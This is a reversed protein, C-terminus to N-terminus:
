EFDVFWRWLHMDISIHLRIQIQVEKANSISIFIYRSISSFFPFFVLFICLAQWSCLIFRIYNSLSSRLICIKLKMITEYDYIKCIHVSLPFIIYLLNQLSFTYTDKFTLNGFVGWSNLDILCLCLHIYERCSLVFLIAYINILDM